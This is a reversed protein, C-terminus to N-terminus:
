SATLDNSVICFRRVSTTDAGDQVAGGPRYQSPWQTRLVATRGNRLDQQFGGGCQNKAASPKGFGSKGHGGTGTNRKGNKRTRVDDM